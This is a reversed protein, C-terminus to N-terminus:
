ELSLTCGTLRELNTYPFIMETGKGFSIRCGPLELGTESPGEDVDLETIVGIRGMMPPTLVRVVDGVDFPRGLQLPTAESRADARMSPIFIEPYKREAPNPETANIIVEHGDHANFIDFAPQAMPERHFGGLVVVSYPMRAAIELLDPRLTEVILGRIGVQAATEFFAPEVTRGAVVIMGRLGIGLRSSPMIEHPRKVGMRLVGINTHGNGWWGQVLAGIAEIVVGYRPLLGIVTGRYGARLNEEEGITELLIRGHPDIHLIRGRMPARVRKRRIVSGAEALIDGEEVLQDPQVRLAKQVAPRKKLGLLEGIDFMHLIRRGPMQAVVDNAQVTRGQQVLVLGPASLLRERQIRVLPAVILEQPTFREAAWM